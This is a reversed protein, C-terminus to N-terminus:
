VKSEVHDPEEVKEHAINSTVTHTAPDFDLEREYVAVEDADGFIAAVEELPIGKTDPFFFWMAVGGISGPIILALSRLNLM